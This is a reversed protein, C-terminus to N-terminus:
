AAGRQKGSPILWGRKTAEAPNAHVQGHCYACGTVCQEPDCIDAGRSRMGPEHVQTARRWCKADWRIQCWPYAALLDAVVQRRTVYVRATKASRPKLPGTRKLQTRCQLPKGRKPPAGRRLSASRKV